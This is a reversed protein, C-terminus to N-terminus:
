DIFDPLSEKQEQKYVVMKGEENKKLYSITNIFIFKDKQSKFKNQLETRVCMYKERTFESSAVYMRWSQIIQKETFYYTLIELCDKIIDISCCALRKFFFGCNDNFTKRISNLEPDSLMILMCNKVGDYGNITRLFTDVDTIENCCCASREKNYVYIERSCVKVSNSYKLCGIVLMVDESASGYLTDPIHEEVKEM